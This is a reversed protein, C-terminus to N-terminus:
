RIVRTPAGSRLDVSYLNGPQCHLWIHAQITSDNVLLPAQGTYLLPIPIRRGDRRIEMVREICPAGGTDTAQRSDTFWVSVAGPAELVLSDPQSPAAATTDAAVRRETGSGGCAVNLTVLALVWKM